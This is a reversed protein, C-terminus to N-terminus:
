VGDGVVVVVGGIVGGIGGVVRGIVVVGWGQVSALLQHRLSDLLVGLTGCMKNGAVLICM